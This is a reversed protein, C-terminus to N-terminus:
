RHKTKARSEIPLIRNCRKHERYSASNDDSVGFVILALSIRFLAVLLRPLDGAGDKEM